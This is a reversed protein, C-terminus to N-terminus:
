HFAQVFRYDAGGVLKVLRWLRLLILLGALERERGHLVVDMIFSSIIVFADFLHFGLPKFAETVTDISSCPIKGSHPVDKSLPNYYHLGFAWLTLPIEVLFLSTIGISIYLLIELWTPQEIEPSGSPETRQCSPPRLFNYGVEVLM